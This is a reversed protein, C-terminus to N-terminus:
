VGFKSALRDSYITALVGAMILIAGATGLLLMNPLKTTIAWMVSFAFMTVGGGFVGAAFMQIGASQEDKM